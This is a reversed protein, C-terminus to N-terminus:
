ITIKKEMPMKELPTILFKEAKRQFLDEVHPSIQEGHTIYSTVANYLEWRTLKAKKKSEDTWVYNVYKKKTKENTVFIVDIGLEGLIRERHKVQEFLKGMIRCATDWEISDKMAGSVWGQLDNSSSIIDNIKLEIFKEIEQAVKSHHKISLTKESRTLVMGNTCALRTFRPIVFLGKSKDYSNILRLGTTFEENLKEFKIDRGKFEIDAFARQGMQKITMNFDLGLRNLANAFGDFYEKHQILNYYPVVITALEGKNINYIGKFKKIEKEVGGDDLKLDVMAAKDLQETANFIQEMNECVYEKEACMM